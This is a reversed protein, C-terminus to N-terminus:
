LGGEPALRPAQEVPILTKQDRKGRVVNNVGLVGFVDDVHCGTLSASYDGGLGLSFNEWLVKRKLAFPTDGIRNPLDETTVASRFGLKRLTAIIQDSYWGNCYAFDVVPKGLEEELRRKSEGIEHEVTAADELTLV